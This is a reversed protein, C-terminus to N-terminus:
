ASGGPVYVYGVGRVTKIFEPKEPNLEVKRRLRMIRLDISRDFVDWSRKHAREMIQDRNLPRNSKAPCPAAPPAKQAHKTFGWNGKRSLAARRKM